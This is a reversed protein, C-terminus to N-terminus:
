QQSTLWRLATTGCPHYVAYFIAGEGVIPWGLLVHYGGYIFHYPVSSLMDWDEAGCPNLIQLLVPM